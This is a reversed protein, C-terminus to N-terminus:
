ARPPIGLKKNPFLNSLVSFDSDLLIKKSVDKNCTGWHPVANYYSFTAEQPAGPFVDKSSVLQRKDFCCEDVNHFFRGLHASITSRQKKCDYVEEFNIKFQDSDTWTMKYKDKSSDLSNQMIQKAYIPSQSTKNFCIEYVEANVNLIEYGISLKETNGPVCKEGKSVVTHKIEETCQIDAYDHKKGNILINMGGDCFATVYQKPFMKFRTPCYLIFHEGKEFIMFDDSKDFLPWELKSSLM